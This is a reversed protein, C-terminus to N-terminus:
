QRSGKSGQAMTITLENPSVLWAEMCGQEVGVLHVRVEERMVGRLLLHVLLGEAAELGKQVVDPVLVRGRRAGGHVAVPEVELSDYIDTTQQVVDPSGGCTSDHPPDFSHM